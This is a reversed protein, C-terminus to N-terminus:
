SVLLDLESMSMFMADQTEGARHQGAATWRQATRRLVPVPMAIAIPLRQDASQQM